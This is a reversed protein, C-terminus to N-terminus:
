SARFRICEAAILTSGSGGFLDLVNECPRSSYRMARVALEVPKGRYTVAFRDSDIQPTDADSRAKSGYIAGLDLRALRVKLQEVAKGITALDDQIADLTANRRLHLDSPPADLKADELPPIGTGPHIM